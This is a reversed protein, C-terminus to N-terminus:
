LETLQYNPGIYSLLNHNHTEGVRERDACQQQTLTSVATLLGLWLFAFTRQQLNM